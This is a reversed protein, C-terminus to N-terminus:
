LDFDEIRSLLLHREGADDLRGLRAHGQGHVNPAVGPGALVGSEGPKVVRRMGRNILDPGGKQQGIEALPRRALGVMGGRSGSVRCAMVGGANSLPFSGRSRSTSAM